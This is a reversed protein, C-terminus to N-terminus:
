CDNRIGEEPGSVTQRIAGGSRDAHVGADGIQRRRGCSEEHNSLWAELVGCDLDGGGAHANRLAPTRIYPASSRGHAPQDDSRLVQSEARLRRDTGHRRRSAGRVVGRIGSRRSSLISDGTIASRTGTHAAPRQACLRRVAATRSACRRCTHCCSVSRSVDSARASSCDTHPRSGTVQFPRSSNPQGFSLAPDSQAIIARRDAYSGIRHDGSVRICPVRWSHAISPRPRQHSCAIM